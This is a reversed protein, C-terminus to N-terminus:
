HLLTSHHSRTSRARVLGPNAALLQFLAAADGGVIAEVAEEFLTVESSPQQCAKLHEVFRPWSAFGHARAVFFQADALTGRAANEHSEQYRRWRRETREAEYDIRRQIEPTIEFSQLRALNAAWRAMWDRIAGPETSNSAAQFEKALKKYQELNPRPPLPLADSM